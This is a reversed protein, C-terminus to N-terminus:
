VLRRGCRPCFKAKAPIIAGCYPCIKKGPPIQPTQQYSPQQISQPPPLPYSPQQPPISPPPQSATTAPPTGYPQEPKKRHSFLIYGIFGAAVAGGIGAVIYILNDTSLLGQNSQTYTPKTTYPTTEIISQSTSTPIGTTRSTERTSERSTTPSTSSIIQSTEQQRTTTPSSTDTIPVVTTTTPTTTTLPTTTPTTTALPYKDIPDNVLKYDTLKYVAEKEGNTYSLIIFPLKFDNNIYVISTTEILGYPTNFTTTHNVIFVPIVHNNYVIKAEDVVTIWVKYTGNFLYQDNVADYVHGITELQISEGKYSPHIGMHFPIPDDTWVHIETDNADYYIAYDSTWDDFVFWVMSATWEDNIYVDEMVIWQQYEETYNLYIYANGTEGSAYEIDYYWEDEINFSVTELSSYPQTLSIFLLLVAVILVKLIRNVM